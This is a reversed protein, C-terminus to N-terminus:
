KGTVDNARDAEIRKTFRRMQAERPTMMLPSGTDDFDQKPLVHDENVWGCRSARNQRNRAM